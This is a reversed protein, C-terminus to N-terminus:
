EEITRGAIRMKPVEGIRQKGGRDEGKWHFIAHYEGERYCKILFYFQTTLLFSLMHWYLSAAIGNICVIFCQASHDYHYALLVARHLCLQCLQEIASPLSFPYFLRMIVLSSHPRTDTSTLTNFMHTPPALCRHPGKYM